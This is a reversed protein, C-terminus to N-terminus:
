LGANSKGCALYYSIYINILFMLCYSFSYLYFVLRVDSYHSGLFFSIMVLVFLGCQWFLDIKQAEAIMCVVSLPSAVFRLFFMPTLIKAIVGAEVWDPGFIIGFLAESFFYILSFPVVSILLLKNLTKLYVERCSGHEAYVASAEQRFVDGIASAVLSIPASLVRNTLLFLGSASTTFFATLLIVPSQASGVNLGHALILFRPFRVYRVSMEKVKAMSLENLIKDDSIAIRKLLFVISVIQGVISGLILGLSNLSWVGGALQASSVSTSQLIRSAAMVRYEAKRNTWYNLSQFICMILAIVPVLYLWTASNESGMLEALSEQAILIAVLVIFSVISALGVSLAVINIADKDSRPIVIALEYRGTILVALVASIAIYVGFVGFDEPSYLRTVIPMIALPIVQALATGTVLTIVNKAFQSAM